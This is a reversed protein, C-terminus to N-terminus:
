PYLIGFDAMNFTNGQVLSTTSLRVIGTGTSDSVPVVALSAPPSSRTALDYYDERTVIAWTCTGTQKCAIGVPPVAVCAMPYYAAGHIALNYNPAPNYVVTPDGLHNYDIASLCNTSAGNYTSWNNYVVEATPQVGQMLLMGIPVTTYTPPYASSSSFFGIDLLGRRLIVKHSMANMLM